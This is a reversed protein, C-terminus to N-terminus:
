CIVFVASDCSIGSVSTEELELLNCWTVLYYRDQMLKTKRMLTDDSDKGDRKNSLWAAPDVGVLAVAAATLGLPETM